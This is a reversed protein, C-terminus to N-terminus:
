VPRIGAAMANILDQKESAASSASAGVSAVPVNAAASEDIRAKGMAQRAHSEAKTYAVALDAASMPTTFMAKEVLAKQGILGLERIERLRTREAAIGASYAAQWVDPAKAKMAKNAKARARSKGTKPEEDDDEAEEEEDVDTAANEGEDDDNDEPITDVAAATDEDDDEDTSARNATRASIVPTGMGTLMATGEMHSNTPRATPVSALVDNLVGIRDIMGRSLADDALFVGGKGFNESVDSTDLGRFESVAGIFIDAMADLKEQIDRRGAASKPDAYKKPSQSSVIVYDRLGQAKRAVSDDTWATIVGISGIHATRDAVISDAACAIWYAASACYGSAYATIPKISYSARVLRAFEHVGNAQGGPSDINLIIHDVDRDALAWKLDRTLADISTAGSVYNFAQAHPFIPGLIPIVAACRSKHAELEGGRAERISMALERDAITRDAIGIILDLSEPLIAWPEAFIAARVKDCLNHPM